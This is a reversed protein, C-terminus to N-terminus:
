HGTKSANGIKLSKNIMANESRSYPGASALFFVAGFNGGGAGNFM